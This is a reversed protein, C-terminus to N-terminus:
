NILDIIKIKSLNNNLLNFKNNKITCDSNKKTEQRKSWGVSKSKKETLNQAILIYLLVNFIYLYFNVQLSSAINLPM